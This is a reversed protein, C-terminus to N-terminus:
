EYAKETRFRFEEKQGVQTNLDGIIIMVFELCKASFCVNVEHSTFFFILWLDIFCYLNVSKLLFMQVSVTDIETRTELWRPSINVKKTFIVAFSARVQVRKCSTAFSLLQVCVAFLLEFKKYGNDYISYFRDRIVCSTRDDTQIYTSARRSQWEMLQGSYDHEGSIVYVNRSATQRSVSREQIICSVCNSIRLKRSDSALGIFTASDLKHSEFRDVIM